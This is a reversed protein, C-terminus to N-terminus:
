EDIYVERSLENKRKFLLILERFILRKYKLETESDKLYDPKSEITKIIEEAKNDFYPLMCDHFFNVANIYEKRSDPHWVKSDMRLGNVVRYQNEWYGSVLEKCCINSIKQIHNLIILKLSIKDFFSTQTETDIIQGEENNDM